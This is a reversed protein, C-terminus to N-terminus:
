EAYKEMFEREAEKRSKTTNSLQELEKYKAEGLREKAWLRFTQETRHASWDPSFVHCSPCLTFGNELVLRTASRSRGFLHHAALNETRGCHLCAGDRERVLKSWLKDEKTIKIKM